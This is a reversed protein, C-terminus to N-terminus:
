NETYFQAMNRFKAQRAAVLEDLPTAKL